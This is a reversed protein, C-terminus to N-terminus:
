FGIALYRVAEAVAAANNLRSACVAVFGSSNLSGLGWCNVGTYPTSGSPTTQETLTVLFCANPFQIPFTGSALGTQSASQGSQGWQMILGGPLKQYGNDSLLTSFYGMDPVQNAGSGINRSAATGLGLKSAGNKATISLTWQSAPPKNGINDDSLSVYIEGGYSCTSGVYYEQQDDWEPVGMQHQYSILQSLTYFAANFDELSPNESPGVIGWGRRFADTIQSTLDDAQATGGFVTRELGQANSGFALLNGEYRAIKSM